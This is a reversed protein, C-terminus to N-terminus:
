IMRKNPYVFPPSHQWDEDRRINREEKRAVVNRIHSRLFSLPKQNDFPSKNSNKKNDQNGRSHDSQCIIKCMSFLGLLMTLLASTYIRCIPKCWNTKIYPLYSRSYTCLEAKVIGISNTVIYNCKFVFIFCAPLVYFPVSFLESM